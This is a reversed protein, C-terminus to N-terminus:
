PFFEDSCQTRVLMRIKEIITRIEAATLNLDKMMERMSKGFLLGRLVAEVDNSDGYREELSQALKLLVDRAEVWEEVSPRERDILNSFLPVAGEQTPTDGSVVQTRPNRKAAGLNRLTDRVKSAVALELLGFLRERSDVKDLKGRQARQALAMLAEQLIDEGDIKGGSKAEVRKRAKQVAYKYRESEYLRQLLQNVVEEDGCELIRVLRTISGASSGM